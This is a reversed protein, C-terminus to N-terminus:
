PAILGTLVAARHLLVIAGVVVAGIATMLVGGSATDLAQAIHPNFRKDVAKALIELATNFMEAALVLTICLLLLCWELRGIRLVCAAVIVAGAFMGHVHFSSQSRVAHAIAAAAARLKAPWSRYPREFLPESM